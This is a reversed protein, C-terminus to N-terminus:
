KKEYDSIPVRFLYWPETGTSGDAYRIPINQKDTVYKDGVNM